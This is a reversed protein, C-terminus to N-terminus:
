GGYSVAMPNRILAFAQIIVSLSCTYNLLKQMPLGLFLVLALRV